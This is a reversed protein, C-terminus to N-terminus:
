DINNWNFTEINKGKIFLVKNLSNGKNLRIKRGFVEGETKDMFNELELGFIALSYNKERAKVFKYLDLLNVKRRKVDDLFDNLMNKFKDLKLTRNKMFLFEKTLKQSDTLEDTTNFTRYVNDNISLEIKNNYFELIFIGIKYEYRKSGKSIKFGLKKLSNLLISLKYTKEILTEEILNLLNM